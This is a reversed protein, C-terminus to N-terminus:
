EVYQVDGGTLNWETDNNATCSHGDNTDEFNQIHFNHMKKKRSPVGAEEEEEEGEEAGEEENENILGTEESCESGDEPFLWFCWRRWLIIALCSGVCASLASISLSGKLCDDGYCYKVPDSTNKEAIFVFSSEMHNEEFKANIGSFMLSGGSPALAMCSLAVAFHKMGFVEATLQPIVTQVGGVGLGLIAVGTVEAFGGDGVALTFLAASNILGWVIFWFTRRVKDRWKDTVIGTIIRGVTNAVAFTTVLTTILDLGPLRQGEGKKVYTEGEILDTRSIVLASLVNLCAACPGFVMLYTIFLQGGELFARKKQFKPEPQVVVAATSNVVFPKSEEADGNKRSIWATTVLICLPAALCTVMMFGFADPSDVFGSTLIAIAAVCAAANLIRVARKIVSSPTPEVNTRMFFGISAQFLHGFLLLLFFKDGEFFAKGLITFIGASLSVWTALAGVVRGRLDKGCQSQCTKLAILYCYAGGQGSCYAAIGYMTWNVNSDSRTLFYMALYGSCGLIMSAIAAAKPGYKDLLIGGLVATWVGAQMLSGIANVESPSYGHKNKITDAFSAFAFSPVGGAMALYVGLVIERDLGIPIM